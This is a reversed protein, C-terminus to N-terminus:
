QAEAYIRYEITGSIAPVGFNEIFVVLNTSDVSVNSIQGSNGDINFSGPGAFLDYYKGNGYTYRAKYYPGYTRGHPISVTTSAFGGGAVSFPASSKKVVREYRYASSFSIKSFDSM